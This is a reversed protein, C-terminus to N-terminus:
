LLKTLDWKSYAFETHFGCLSPNILSRSFTWIRAVLYNNTKDCGSGYLLWSVVYGLPLQFVPQCLEEVRHSQDCSDRQSPKAPALTAVPSPKASRV